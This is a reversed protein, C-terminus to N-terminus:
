LLGVRFDTRAKEVNKWGSESDLSVLWIQVPIIQLQMKKFSAM